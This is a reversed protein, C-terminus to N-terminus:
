QDRAPPAAVFGIRFGERQLDYLVRGFCRYPTNIDGNLHAERGHWRRAFASFEDPAMQRGDVEVTCPTEATGLGGPTVVLARPTACGNLVGAVALLIIAAAKM